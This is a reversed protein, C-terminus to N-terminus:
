VLFQVRNLSLRRRSVMDLIRGPTGIVVDVGARLAAEQAAYGVGGYVLTSKLGSSLSSFVREVQMALERTPTVVLGRPGPGPSAGLLGRPRGLGDRSRCPPHQRSPRDAPASQPALHGDGDRVNGGM